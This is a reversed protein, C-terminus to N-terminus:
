EHDPDIGAADCYSLFSRCAFEKANDCRIAKVPHHPFHTKLHILYTLIKPFAHNKNTLLDVRAFRSSGDRIALFYYFPGSPPSIPGCIDVFLHSLFRSSYASVSSQKTSAVPKSQTCPICFDSFYKGIQSVSINVGTSNGLICQMM